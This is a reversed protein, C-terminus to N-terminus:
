ASNKGRYDSLRTPLFLSASEASLRNFDNILLEDLQEHMCIGTEMLDNRTAKTLMGCKILRDIHAIINNLDDKLALIVKIDDNILDASRPIHGDEALIENTTLGPEM